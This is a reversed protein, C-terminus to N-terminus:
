KLLKRILKVLYILTQFLKNIRKGFSILANSSGKTSKGSSEQSQKYEAVKQKAIDFEREAQKLTAVQKAEAPTQVPQTSLFERKKDILKKYEAELPELEKQVKGLENDLREIEGPAAISGGQISILRENFLDWKNNLDNIKVGIKDLQKDIKSVDVAKKDQGMNDLKQKAIDAKDAAKELDSVLKMMKSDLKDTGSSVGLEDLSQKAKKAYSTVDKEAKKTDLSVGIKVSGDYEPM